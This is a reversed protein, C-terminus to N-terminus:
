QQFKSIREDLIDFFNPFKFKKEKQQNAFAKIEDPLNNVWGSFVNRGKKVRHTKNKSNQCIQIMEELKHTMIVEHLSAWANILDRAAIPFTVFWKSKEEEKPM